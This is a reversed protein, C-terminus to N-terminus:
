NYVESVSQLMKRENIALQEGQKLRIRKIDKAISQYISNIM